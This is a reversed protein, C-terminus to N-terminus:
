AKVLFPAIAESPPAVLVVEDGPPIEFPEYVRVIYLGNDKHVIEIFPSYRKLQEESLGITEGPTAPIAQGKVLYTTTDYM